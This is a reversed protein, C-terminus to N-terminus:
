SQVQAAFYPAMDSPADVWLIREEGLTNKLRLKLKIAPKGEVTDQLVEVVYGLVNPTSM